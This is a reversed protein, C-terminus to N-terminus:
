HPMAKSFRAKTPISSHHAVILTDLNFIFHLVLFYFPACECSELFRVVEKDKVLASASYLDYGFAAKCFILDIFEASDKGLIDSGDALRSYHVSNGVAGAKRFVM